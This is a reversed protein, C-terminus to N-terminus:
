MGSIRRVRRGHPATRAAEAEREVRTDGLRSRVITLRAQEHPTLYVKPRGFCYEADVGDLTSFQHPFDSNM